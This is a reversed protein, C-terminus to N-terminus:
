GGASEAGRAAAPGEEVVTNLLARLTGEQVKGIVRAAVSGRKDLILTVPVAQAPVHQSLALLARGDRDEISAYPIDFEEEFALAAARNDKVNVGVFRVGLEAYERSLASLVPAEERCPVCWSGWVNIVVVDGRLEAIDLPDDTLTTGALEVPEGREQAPYETVPGNSQARIGRGDGQGSWSSQTYWWGAALLTLALALFVWLRPSGAAPDGRRHQGDGDGRRDRDEGGNVRDAPVADPRLHPSNADNTARGMM